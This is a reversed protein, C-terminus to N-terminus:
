CKVKPPARQFQCENPPLYNLGGAIVHAFRLNKQGQTFTFQISMDFQTLTLLSCLRGCILQFKLQLLKRIPSALNVSKKATIAEAKSCDNVLQILYNRYQKNSPYRTYRYQSQCLIENRPVIRSNNSSVDLKIFCQM